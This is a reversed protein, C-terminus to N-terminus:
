YFLCTTLYVMKAQVRRLSPLWLYRVVIHLSVGDAMWPKDERGLDDYLPHHFDFHVSTLDQLLESPVAYMTPPGLSLERLGPLLELLKCLPFNVYWSRSYVDLSLAVTNQGLDPRTMLTQLLRNSQQFSPPSPHPRGETTRTKARPLGQTRGPIELRISKYILPEALAQFRHSVLTIHALDSTLSLNSIIQHLIENPLYILKMRNQRIKIKAFSISDQKPLPPSHSPLISKLRLSM